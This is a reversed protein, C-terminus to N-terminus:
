QRECILHGRLFTGTPNNTWTPTDWQLCILDGSAVSISLGTYTYNVSTATSGTTVFTGVSSSTSQTTNRIQLTSLESSGLASNGSISLQVGIIKFAIGIGFDLNTATTSNSINGQGFYYTTADAPSMSGTIFFIAFTDQSAKSNWTSKETDTVFRYSASQTVKSADVDNIKVNTVASSDITWTAGSGSVTIDGKDGDTVGGGTTRSYAM